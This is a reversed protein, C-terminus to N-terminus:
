MNGARICRILKGPFSLTELEKKLRIERLEVDMM